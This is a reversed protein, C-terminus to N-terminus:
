KKSDISQKFTNKTAKNARGYWYKLMKLVEAQDQEITKIPVNVGMTLQESHTNIAKTSSKLPAVSESQKVAVTEQAPASYTLGFLPVSALKNQGNYQRIEHQYDRGIQLGTKTLTDLKISVPQNAEDTVSLQPTKNFAKAARASSVQPLQLLYNQQKADFTVVMAESVFQIREGRQSYTSFFKFVIQQVGMNIAIPSKETTKQGNITLLEVNDPMHLKASAFATSVFLLSSLFVCLTPKALRMFLYYM